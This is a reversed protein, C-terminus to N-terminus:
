IGFGKFKMCYIEQYVGSCDTEACVKGWAHLASSLVDKLEKKASFNKLFNKLRTITEANFELVAPSERFHGRDDEITGKALIVRKGFIEEM